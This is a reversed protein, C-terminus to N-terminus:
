HRSIKELNLAGVQYVGGKTDGRRQLLINGKIDFTRWLCLKSINEHGVKSPYIKHLKKM